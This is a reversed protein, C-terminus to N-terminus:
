HTRIQSLITYKSLFSNHAGYPWGVVYAQDNLFWLFAKKDLYRIFSTKPGKMLNPQNSLGSIAYESLAFPIKTSVSQSPNESFQKSARQSAPKSRQKSSKNVQIESTWM